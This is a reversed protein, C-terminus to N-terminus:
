FRIRVGASASERHDDEGSQADVTTFFEVGSTLRYSLGASATGVVAARQAGTALLTLPGGAYGGIAEPTRGQIQARLGLGVYPRFAADSTDARAFRFGADAFGAVHRDRAVDLAFVNGTEGVRDRVTRIYTVGVKPTVSWDGMTPIAYGVSLDGVWSHLGYRGSASGGNPLARDTQADGGDYLVSATLRLGGTAYRGHIGAVFGDTKTSVGLVDIRQRSDLYGIFGGVAWDRNGVGVGGLLGYGRTRASSTGADRDGAMRHWQGLVQGFTFPHADDSDTFAFGPGRAADALTLAQDVGLQTASAYPEPTLRAFAAPNSGGNALLLSPLAAFLPSNAAQTPIVSNAYDISRSVQPNFLPDGLFQGLLQIRDARQVLFGFLTDAKEITTYSGTMGGSAIILDYSTGPRIQGDAVIKLASGNAIGLTGNIRLQDAITPTIEFLSVSGSALAVNGNVTMTGPSAGPSLTGAVTINGNVIGASGFTAGSRVAIQGARIMSGALGVFRGGTLDISGFIGTGSLTAFGASMGLAEVNAVNTFAVPAASSGGSVQIMDNGAGGDVSGTFGGAITFRNDGAGFTVPAKLSAGSAITLGTSANVVDYVHAGTLTLTGTGESNLIEFGTLLGAGLTRDGALELTASDTGAGGSVTGALTAGAALRFSDNGAGLNITGALTGGQAITLSQAGDGFSIADGLAGLTGTVTLAGGTLAIQEFGAAIGVLTVPANAAFGLQDTGAGGMYIGAARTTGLTVKDDGAGMMAVAVDGDVSFAETGDTGMVSGASFGNLVLSLGTGRLAITQFNQDLTLSLTGNGEVSLREFGTRQGIGSRDGALMVTYLDNGAGGDVGGAVSSGPGEVFQDDGAGLAVAGGIRGNNVVRDNGAGLDVTGSITGDNLVTEAGDGGIITTPGTSALTQRAAVTVTGDMLDISNFNFNGSYAVSGNGIQSFREFNIFQDGNVAGGRTADIILSDDGLGADVIGTLVADAAHLFIDDGAGLWVNSEIRGYNDIRDNGYGLDISGIISGRNTIRDDANGITQIGGALVNSGLAAILLDKTELLTDAGGRITGSNTLDLATGNVLVAVSKAGTAEITGSNDITGTVAPDTTISLGTAPTTYTYITPNYFPYPYLFYDGTIGEGTGCITGSNTIAFTSAATGAVSISMAASAYGASSITGSNDVSINVAGSKNSSYYDYLMISVAANADTRITGSNNVILEAPADRQVFSGDISLGGDLTGANSASLASLDTGSLSVAGEGASSMITGSNAFTLAGSTRYLSVAEGDLGAANVTGENSFSRLMGDIQGTVIGKNIFALPQDGTMRVSGNLPLRTSILANVTAENIITGDGGIYVANEIRDAATLTLVADEGSAEIYDAEFNLGPRAGLAITGSAKRSYGFLDFGDGGNIIGSVGSDEGTQLFLDNSSGFVLNGQIAGGDAVYIGAGYGFAPSSSLVNGVITGRNVITGGNSFDVARRGRITGGAENTLTGGQYTGLTVATSTRSEITGSNVIQQAGNGYYDSQVAVGDVEIVGSNTLSTFSTVGIAGSGDVDRITGSNIVTRMGGIATGRGTLTITGSNTATAADGYGFITTASYNRGAANSINISGNNTFDASGAMIAAPNYSYNQTTVSLSLNGDNIISLKRTQNNGTGILQDTTLITADILARDVSSITGNLSVTGDGVLGISAGLAAPASLSLRAGDSVEYALAEFGNALALTASADAKVRYRLTDWGAGADVGGAAGAFARGAPANLDVVLQDDGGGLRIAGTVSGGNDVVIDSNSDFSYPSSMDVDGVIRGANALISRYGGSAVGGVIVGSTANVLTAGLSVGATGGTISGSNILRGGTLSLGYSAGEITGSNTSDPYAGYLIVGTGGSSRITGSNNLAGYGITAGTGTASISGSNTLSSYASVGSGGNAIITGSNIVKAPRNVAFALNGNLNATITNQNDFTLEYTSFGADIATGGTTLAAQNVLTGFGNIRVGTGATFDPALTAIANNSLEIGFIEFNTPLVVTRFITDSAVGIQVTDFGAGGDITGTISSIRGSAADYIARLTDDGAGLILDGNITGERTDISSGQVGIASSIVSGNITGQNTLNLVDSTRIAISACGITAGSLNTIYAPGTASITPAAGGSVIQGRNEIFMSSYTSAVASGSGGDVTGLNVLGSLRGSIGGIWGSARNDVSLYGSGIQDIVIASGSTGLITGQNYLSGYISANSGVDRRFLIGQVGTMTGGAGVSITASSSPYYTVISGPVCYIPTVGAYPDCPGTIAPGTTVFMGPKSPGGDVTGDIVFNVNSARSVIAATAVGPRVIADAAVIVRTGDTGVTLGDSDTGTCNTIGNATSPDPSCQAYAPAAVLMAGFIASTQLARVRVRRGRPAGGQVTM